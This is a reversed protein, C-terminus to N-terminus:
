STQLGPYITGLTSAVISKNTTEEDKGRGDPLRNGPSSNQFLAPVFEPWHADAFERLGKKDEGIQVFVQNKDDVILNQDPTLLKQLVKPVASAATAAENITLSRKLSLNETELTTIKTNGETTQQELTAVKTQIEQSKTKEQQLQQDAQQLKQETEQLKQQATQATLELDKNKNSLNQANTTAEALDKELTEKQSNLGQAKQRWDKAESNIKAVHAKIAEAWKKGEESLEELFGLAQAYENM